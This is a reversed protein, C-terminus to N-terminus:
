LRWRRKPVHLVQSGDKAGFRIRVVGNAPLAQSLSLEAIELGAVQVPRNAPRPSHRPRQNVLPSAPLDQPPRNVRCIRETMPTQSAEPGRRVAGSTKRREAALLRRKAEPRAGARM